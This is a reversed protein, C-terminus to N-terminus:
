YLLPLIFHVNSHLIWSPKNIENAQNATWSSLINIVFNLTWCNDGIDMDDNM